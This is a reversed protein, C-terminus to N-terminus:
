DGHPALAQLPDRGPRRDQRHRAGAGRHAAARRGRRELGSTRRDPLRARRRPARPESTYPDRMAVTAGLAAVTDALAHQLREERERLAEDARVRETVDLSAGIVAEVRGQADFRPEGYTMLHRVEHTKPHVIRHDVRYLSGPPPARSRRRCRRAITRIASPWSQEEDAFREGSFGHLRQWEESVRTVGSAVDWEWSGLHALSEGNSLLATSRQLARLAQKQASVDQVFGFLHADGDAGDRDESLYLRGDFLSGDKRRYRNESIRWDGGSEQVDRVIGARQSPDEYTAAAIGTRKAVELMEEPSDYGFITAFAPNVFVFHGEPTSRFIGVPTQDFLSRYRVESERLAAEARKRESIDSLLALFYEVDGADKRVARVGMDVYVARGDKRIFRKELRYADIEGAMVRDFQAVDTALDDPHTMESWTKDSLEERAYGVLDLFAQNVDIVGKEPSTVAVGVLSQEFYGRFRSESALLEAHARRVATVDSGRVVVGIVEGSSDAQPALLVDYFRQRAGVGLHTNFHVEEGALVKPFHALATERDTEIVWDDLMPDGLAIERGYVARVAAAYAENFATYRLQRDVAFVPQVDLDIIARLAELEQM